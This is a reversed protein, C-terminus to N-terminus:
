FVIVFNGILAIKYPAGLRSMSNKLSCISSVLTIELVIKQISIACKNPIVTFYVFPLEPVRHHMSSSPHKVRSILNSLTLPLFIVIFDKFCHSIIYSDLFPYVLYNSPM